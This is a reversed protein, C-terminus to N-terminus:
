RDTHPQGVIDMLDVQARGLLSSGIMKQAMLSLELYSGPAVDRVLFEARGKRWKPRDTKKIIETRCNQPPVSDRKGFISRPTTPDKFVDAYHLTCMCYVDCPKELGAAESLAVIMTFETGRSGASAESGLSNTRDMPIRDM